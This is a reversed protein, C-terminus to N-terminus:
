QFLSELAKPLFVEGYCSTEAATSSPLSPTRPSSHKVRKESFKKFMMPESFSLKQRMLGSFKKWFDNGKDLHAKAFELRAKVHRTKLFPTKRPRCGKLGGEHLINSVTQKTVRIGSAELEAQIEKRTTRPNINVQRIFRRKLKPTVKAIRGSRPKSSIGGTEKFRAVTGKVTSRPVEFKKSIAKYGLGKLYADIIRQRLDLSLEKNKGM